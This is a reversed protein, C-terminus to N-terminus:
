GDVQGFLTLTNLHKTDMAPVEVGLPASIQM